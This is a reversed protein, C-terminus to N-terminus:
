IFAVAIYKKPSVISTRRNKRFASHLNFSAHTSLYEILITKHVFNCNKILLLPHVFFKVKHLLQLVNTEGKIACCNKIFDKNTTVGLITFTSFILMLM